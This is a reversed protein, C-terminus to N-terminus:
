ISFIRLAVLLPFHQLDRVSIIPPLLISLGSVFTQLQLQTCPPVTRRCLDVDIRALRIQVALVLNIGPRIGETWQTHFIM